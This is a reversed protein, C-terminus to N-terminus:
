QDGREIEMAMQEFEDIQDQDLPLLPFDSPTHGGADPEAAHTALGTLIAVWAGVLRNVSEEDLLHEPWSLSVTLTPGDPGDRVVGGAELVHSAPM